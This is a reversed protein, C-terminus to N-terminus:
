RGKDVDSDLGLYDENWPIVSTVNNEEWDTSTIPFVEVVHESRQTAVGAKNPRVDVLFLQLFASLLM